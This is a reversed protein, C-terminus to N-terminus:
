DVRTPPPKITLLGGIGGCTAAAGAVFMHYPEEVDIPADEAGTVLM